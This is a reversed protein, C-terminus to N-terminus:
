ERSVLPPLAPTVRGEFVRDLFAAIRIRDIPDAVIRCAECDGTRRVRRAWLFISRVPSVGAGGPLFLELPFADEGDDDPECIRRISVGTSSADLVEVAYPRGQRYKNAFTDETRERRGGRREAVQELM